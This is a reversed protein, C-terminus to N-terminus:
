KSQLLEIIANAATTYLNLKDFNIIPCGVMGWKGNSLAYPYEYYTTKDYFNKFLIARYVHGVEGDLTKGKIAADEGLHFYVTARQEVADELSIQSGEQEIRADFFKSIRDMDSMYKAFDEAHDKAVMYRVSGNRMKLMIVPNFNEDIAPDIGTTIKQEQKM